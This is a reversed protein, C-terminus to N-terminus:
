RRDAVGLCAAELWMQIAAVQARAPAVKSVKSACKRAMPRIPTETSSQRTALVQAKLATEKPSSGCVTVSPLDSAAAIGDGDTGRFCITLQMPPMDM